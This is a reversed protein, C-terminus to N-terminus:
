SAGRGVGQYLVGHKTRAKRFREGMKRGFATTSLRDKVTFGAAVAWGLYHQYLDDAGVVSAGDIETAEDLFRGIVDSDQRYGDTAETVCSPATLGQRQWDLCGRVAWALIGVDDGALRDEFAPDVPFTREFPILRVRRWFAPSDDRVVPKHNFALWFKGAPQFTFFEGHLWRATIPDAGTWAKIRAENLRIGDNTESSTILRPGDLAALDNPISSRQNLEIVSFPMNRWYDGFVAALRRFLVGKGNSGTQGYCGLFIQESTLGTLSYGVARQVFRTLDEKGSFSDLLFRDWRPCTAAPDFRGRAQLTIRDEPRGDRLTGIKLDIVGNEVALLWPDRDWKDGADALAELNKALGLLNDIKAKTELRSAWELVATKRAGQGMQVAEHQWLRLCQVVYRVIGGTTDPTWRHRDWCLWLGRRHDFVFRGGAQQAFREAASLESLQEPVPPLKVPFPLPSPSV